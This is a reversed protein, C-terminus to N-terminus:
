THVYGKFYDKIESKPREEGKIKYLILYKKIIEKRAMMIYLCLHRVLLTGM